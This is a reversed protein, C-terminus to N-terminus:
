PTVPAPDDNPLDSHRVIAAIPPLAGRRAADIQDVIVAIGVPEAGCARILRTATEVQSGREIWDDVILVRDDASLSDRQISLSWANGRYDPPADLAVKPGPFLTDPKRIAVFGVKLDIAVPAALVFGRAEIGCVKTIRADRWPEALGAIIAAFTAPEDFLRWVDAHGGQWRFRRHVARAAADRTAEGNMRPHYTARGGVGTLM